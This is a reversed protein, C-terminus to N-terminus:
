NNEPKNKRLAFAWSSRLVEDWTVRWSEAENEARGARWVDDILIKSHCKECDLSDGCSPMSRRCDLHLPDLYVTDVEFDVMYIRGCSPCKFLFFNEDGGNYGGAEIIAQYDMDIENVFESM